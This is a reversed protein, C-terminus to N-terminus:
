KGVPYKQQVQDVIAQVEKLKADVRQVVKGVDAVLKEIKEKERTYGGPWPGAPKGEKWAGCHVTGKASRGWGKVLQTHRQEM